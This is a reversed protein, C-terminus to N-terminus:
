QNQVVNGTREYKQEALTLTEILEVRVPTGEPLNADPPLLITGNVVKGVYTM